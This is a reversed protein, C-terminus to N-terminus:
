MKKIWLFSQEMKRQSTTFHAPESQHMKDCFGGSKNTLTLAPTEQTWSQQHAVSCQPLPRECTEWEGSTEQAFINTCFCLFFTYVWNRVVHLSSSEKGSERTSLCWLNSTKESKRLSEECHHLALFLFKLGSRRKSDYGPNLNQLILTHCVEYKNCCKVIHLENKIGM